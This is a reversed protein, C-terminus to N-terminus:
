NDHAPIIVQLPESADLQHSYNRLRLLVPLTVEQGRHVLVFGSSTRIEQDVLMGILIWSISALLAENQAHATQLAQQSAYVEQEIRKRDSIDEVAGKYYLVRGDEATIARASDRVWIPTGAYRRWRVEFGAAQGDLELLAQARARDEQHLYV